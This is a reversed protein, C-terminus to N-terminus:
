SPDEETLDLQRVVTDWDGLDGVLKRRPPPSRRLLAPTALVREQEALDPRDRM